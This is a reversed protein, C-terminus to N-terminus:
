ARFVTVARLLSRHGLVLTGSLGKRLGLLVANIDLAPGQHTDCCSMDVLREYHKINKYYM